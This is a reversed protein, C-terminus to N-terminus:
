YINGALKMSIAWAMLSVDHYCHRHLCVFSRVFLVFVYHRWRCHWSAFAYYFVVSKNFVHNVCVSSVVSFPSALSFPNQCCFTLYSLTMFSVDLQTWHVCLTWKSVMWCCSRWTGCFVKMRVRCM